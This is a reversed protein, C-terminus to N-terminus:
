VHTVSPSTITTNSKLMKLMQGLMWRQHTSGPTCRSFCVGGNIEVESVCETRGGSWGSGGVRMWWLVDFTWCSRGGAKRSQMLAFLISPVTSYREYVYLVCVLPRWARHFVLLVLVLGNKQGESCWLGSYASCTEAFRQPSKRSLCLM